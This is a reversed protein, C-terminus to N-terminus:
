NNTKKSKIKEAIKKLNTPLDIVTILTEDTSFIFVKQNYIRMNAGKKHALFLKDLYKSLRGTAEKHTIGRSLAKTALKDIASKPINIREHIRKNAHRSIQM